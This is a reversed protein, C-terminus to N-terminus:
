MSWRSKPIKILFWNCNFVLYFNDLGVASCTKSTISYMGKILVATCTTRVAVCLLFESTLSLAAETSSCPTMSSLFSRNLTHSWNMFSLHLFIVVMSSAIDTHDNWTLTSIGAINQFMRWCEGALIGLIGHVLGNLRKQLWKWLCQSKIKYSPIQLKCIYGVNSKKLVIMITYSTFCWYPIFKHAHMLSFSRHAPTFVTHDSCHSMSSM